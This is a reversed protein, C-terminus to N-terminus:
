VSLSASLPLLALRFKSSRGRHPHWDDDADDGGFVKERVADITGPVVQWVHHDMRVCQGGNFAM